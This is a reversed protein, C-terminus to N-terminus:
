KNFEDILRDKFGAAKIYIYGDRYACSIHSEPYDYPREILRTHLHYLEIQDDGHSPGPSWKKVMEDDAEKLTDLIPYNGPKLNLKKVFNSFESESAKYKLYMFCWDDDGRRQALAVIPHPYKLTVSKELFRDRKFPKCSAVTLLILLLLFKNVM